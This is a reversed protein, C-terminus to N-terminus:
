NKNETKFEKYLVKQKVSAINQKIAIYKSKLSIQKAM